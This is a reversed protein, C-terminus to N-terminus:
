HKNSANFLFDKEERSLSDYGGKSIKELIEDIKQQREKKQLNYAEDSVPRGSYAGKSGGSKNSNNFLSRFNRIINQLPNTRFSTHYNKYLLAYGAGFLAGGIHAIHGGANGSPIMFFDFVFLIVALYIIKLRGILFLQLTYNPVYVSIATVIAMVSASAGLAFSAPVISTFVPFTNFTWLYILGGCVGGLFYIWVLQRSPLFETFIRGFWFLWLMNFLIHWIDVHLFMYTIITWPKAALAPLYAPIALTHIILSNVTQADPDNFFFFVVRLVQVLVWVAVNALILLPLATRQMFFRKIDEAPNGPQRYNNYIM